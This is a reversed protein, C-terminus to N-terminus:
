RAYYGPRATVAYGKGAAEPSAVKVRIARFEGAAPAQHPTYVLLYYNANVDAAKKFSDAPNKSIEVLGGTALALDRFGPFIDESMERMSGGFVSQSKKDMFIFNFVIGADAFAKQVRESSFTSERRYFEFLDMLNAQVTPNDQYQSILAQITMPSMEPRYEREYFFYVIKQGPRARLSEAFAVLKNEDVLRMGEMRKINNRYFDLQQELGFDSSSLDSGLDDESVTDQKGDIANTIRRMSRVVDRYEVGGKQIDKRLIEQMSRSLTEPSKTALADKQLNYPKVPTVLTMADGPKLVSSFLHDVAEGLRKDWDVAQFLLFFSRSVDPSGAKLEEKRGVTHGQVLYLADLPQVTGNETLEFDKLALNDIFRAGESVHVRVPVPAPATKGSEQGASPPPPMLLALGLIILFAARGSKIINMINVGEETGKPDRGKGSAANRDGMIFREAPANRKV